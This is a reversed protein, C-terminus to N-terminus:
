KSFTLLTKYFYPSLNIGLAQEMGSFGPNHNVELVLHEGNKKILVDVGTITLNTCKKAQLALNKVQETITYPKVSGGLSFNARFEGMTPIRQMCFMSNGICLVRLDTKYDIYEQFIVDTPGKKIDQSHKVFNKYDQENSIKFVGKGKSQSKIKAIYPVGFKSSLISHSSDEFSRVTTYKPINISNNKLKELDKIKDTVYQNKYLGNGFVKKGKSRLTKIVKAASHLHRYLQFFVIVDATSNLVLSWNPKESKVYNVRKPSLNLVDLEINRGDCYKRFKTDIYGPASTVVLLKM